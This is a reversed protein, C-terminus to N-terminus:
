KRNTRYTKKNNSNRYNKNRTASINYIISKCREVKLNGNLNGANSTPYKDGYTRQLMYQYSNVPIDTFCGSQGSTISLAKSSKITGFSDNSKHKIYLIVKYDKNTDNEFCYDGINRRECNADVYEPNGYREGHNLRRKDEDINKTENIGTEHLIYKINEDKLINRPIAALTRGTQIDILKIRLKLSHSNAVDVTGTIIADAQIYMGLEKVTRPDIMGNNEMKHEKMVQEIADRDMVEFGDSINTFYVSFEQGIYDGLVTTQRFSNKFYWVAINLKKKAKVQKAVDEALQRMQSDYDQSYGKPITLFFIWLILLHIQTKM